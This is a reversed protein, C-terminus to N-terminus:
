IGMTQLWQVYTVIHNILATTVPTYQYTHWWNKGKTAAMHAAVAANIAIYCGAGYCGFIYIGITIGVSHVYSCMLELTKELM